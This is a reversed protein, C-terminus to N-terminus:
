VISYNDLIGVSDNPDVAGLLDGNVAKITKLHRSAVFGAAGILAFSKM